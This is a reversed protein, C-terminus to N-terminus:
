GEPCTGAIHPRACRHVIHVEEVGQAKPGCSASPYRYAVLLPATYRDLMDALTGESEEFDLRKFVQKLIMPERFALARVCFVWVKFGSSQTNFSLEVDRPEGVSM